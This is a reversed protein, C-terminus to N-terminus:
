LVVYFHIFQFKTALVIASVRNIKWAVIIGGSFGRGNSFHFEDFGLLQCSRRLREADVRLEMIVIIDPNSSDMYQKCSRFFEPSGAGRCNWLFINHNQLNM